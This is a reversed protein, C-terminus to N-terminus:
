ASKQYARYFQPINEAISVNKLDADLNLYKILGKPKPKMYRAFLENMESWYARLIEFGHDTIGLSISGPCKTYEFSGIAKLTFLGTIYGRIKHKTKFNGTLHQMFLNQSVLVKNSAILFGHLSLLTSLEFRNIQFKQYTSDRLSLSSLIAFCHYTNSDTSKLYSSIATSSAGIQPKIGRAM